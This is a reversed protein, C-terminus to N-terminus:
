FINCIFLMDVDVCTLVCVLPLNESSNWHFGSGGWDTIIFQHVHKVPYSQLNAEQFLVLVCLKSFILYYLVSCKSYKGTPGKLDWYAEFSCLTTRVRRFGFTNIVKRFPWVWLRRSAADCACRELFETDTVHIKQRLTIFRVFFFSDRRSPKTTCGFVSVHLQTFFSLSILVKSYLLRSRRDRFLVFITPHLSM